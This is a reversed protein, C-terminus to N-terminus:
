KSILVIGGGAIFIMEYLQCGSSRRKMWVNQFRGKDFVFCRYKEAFLILTRVATAESAAQIESSPSICSNRYDWKSYISANKESDWKPLSKHYFGFWLTFNESM